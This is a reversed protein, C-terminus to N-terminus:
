KAFMCQDRERWCSETCQRRGTMAKNWLLLLLFLLLFLLLLVFFSCEFSTQLGGVLFFLFFILEM